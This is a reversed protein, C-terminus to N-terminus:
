RYRCCAIFDILQHLSDDNMGDGHWTFCFSMFLVYMGNYKRRSKRIVSGHNGIFWRITCADGNEAIGIGFNSYRQFLTSGKGMSRDFLM